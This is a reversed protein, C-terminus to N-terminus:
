QLSESPKALVLRFGVAPSAEVSLYPGRWNKQCEHKPSLYSGGRIVRAVKGKGSIVKADLSWGDLCWEAVNGFMDYLGNGNPLLSAVRRAKTIELYPLKSNNKYWAICDLTSGTLNENPKASAHKWQKESPLDYTYDSPVQGRGTEFDNILKCVERCQWWTLGGKPYEVRRGVTPVELALWYVRETVETSSIWFGENVGEGPAMWCMRMGLANVFSVGEKLRDKAKKLEFSIIKREGPKVAFVETQPDYGQERALLYHKGPSLTMTRSRCLRGDLFVKTRKSSCRLVLTAKARNKPTRELNIVLKTKEGPRGIVQHRVTDYGRRRVTLENIGLALKIGKRSVRKTGIFIQAYYPRIDLDLQPPDPDLTLWITRKKESGSLSVESIAATFGEREAKIEWEGQTLAIHNNGKIDRPRGNVSISADKPALEITLACYSPYASVSPVIVPRFGVTRKSLYLQQRAANRCLSASDAYSGGRVVHGNTSSKHWYSARPQALLYNASWGDRCMEACNGLMDYLGWANPTKLKVAQLRKQSNGKYWGAQDLSRIYRSGITGARCCYEWQAETPLDYRYNPPLHGRGQAKETMGKLLAIVQSYRLNVIPRLARDSSSTKNLHRSYSENTWEHECIWFGELVGVPHVPKEDERLNSGMRFKGPAIWIFNLGYQDIFDRGKILERASKEKKNTHMTAVPSPRTKQEMHLYTLLALLIGVFALVYSTSNADGVMPEVQIQEIDTVLSGQPSRASTSKCGYTSCGKNFAWCDHHHLTDCNKCEVADARNIGEGCVQCIPLSSGKESM